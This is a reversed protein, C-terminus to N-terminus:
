QASSERIAKALKVPSTVETNPGGSPNLVLVRSTGRGYLKNITFKIVIAVRRQESRDM